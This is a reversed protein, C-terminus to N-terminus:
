KENLKERYDVLKPFFWDTTYRSRKEYNRIHCSIREGESFVEITRITARIEVQKGAFTYPVSYYYSDFQVHYDFGVKALKHEAYEYRSPPLARLQGKEFELFAEQRNGPIKAFPQTNLVELEARVAKWLEPFSLFQRDRLKAIIRREVIQVGTEVPAKDRPARSRAPIIVAGYYRALEHYTKNLDPDYYKPKIVATKTNDPVLIAAAGGYYEFANVHAASWSEQGMNLFPEVYLYSSAPLDAVFLYVKVAEGRSNTYQMTLGAWDVLMREGAKYSKHMYVENQKRFKRYRECFPSLMYGNPHATKYEEWLLTLTVGKKQMERHVWELDPEDRQAGAEKVAPYLVKSLEKNRIAKLDIIGAERARALIANVNGLSRGTAGAIERQTMGADKLRLIERAKEM